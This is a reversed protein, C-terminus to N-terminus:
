FGRSKIGKPSRTTGSVSEWCLLSRLLLRSSRQLLKRPKVSLVLRWQRSEKVREDWM